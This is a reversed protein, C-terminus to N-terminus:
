PTLPTKKGSIVLFKEYVLKKSIKFYQHIISAATSAPTGVACLCHLATVWNEHSSLCQNQDSSALAPANNQPFRVVFGWEGKMGTIQIASEVKKFVEQATGEFFTEYIKTLEKGVVVESVPFEESLVKLTTLLRLPSEFWIFVRAVRSQHALFLENRQDSKKRPFFGRFVFETEQFGTVSLLTLVASVGPIPTVLIGSKRALRVLCSGPDSITPTGADSVFAFNKQDKQLLSIWHQIKQPPTHADCKKLRHMGQPIKLAALLIATRQVSECFIIEAENLAQQARETIDQLNGIPTAIVWLGPPLIQRKPETNM